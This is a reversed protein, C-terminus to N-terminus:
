NEKSDSALRQQLRSWRKRLAASSEGTMDAIQEWELGRGRLDILRREDLSLSDMVMRQREESSIISSAGGIPSAPEFADGASSDNLSFAHRGGGRRQAGDHRALDILKNKVIAQLYGALAAENEFHVKGEHFDEVFSKVVSQCVDISERRTRLRSDMKSRVMIMLLRVLHDFAREREVVSLSSTRALLAQLPSAQPMSEDKRSSQARSAPPNPCLSMLM